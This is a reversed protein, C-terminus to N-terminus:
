RRIFGGLITKVNDWFLLRLGFFYFGAGLIITVGVLFFGTCEFFYCIQNAVYFSCIALMSPIVPILVVSAVRVKILVAVTVLVPVTWILNAAFYCASVGEVGWPLGLFFASVLFPVGIFGLNRLASTKGIAILVPGSTSALSQLFGVPALWRIVNPLGEWQPGMLESVLPERVFWIAAMLPATILAIGLLTIKYHASIKEFSDQNRSYASLLAKNIAFTITQLPFLLIRYAVSYVGLSVEGLFRGIIIADANRHFYNVLNFVFVDSSVRVIESLGSFSLKDPKWKKAMWVLFTMVASSTLSQFALSIAGFGKSAMVYAVVLGFFSSIAMRIALVDFRSERELLAIHVSALASVPFSIALLRLVLEVRDSNLLKALIPSAIVLLCAIVISIGLNLWFAANKHHQLLNERQVLASPIGMEAIIQVLAIVVGSLAIVAFEDPSLLRALVSIGVLQILLQAFRGALLSHVSSSISVDSKM